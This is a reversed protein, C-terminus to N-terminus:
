KFDGMRLISKERGFIKVIGAIDPGKTKGTLSIRIPMMLNKGGKGLDEGVFMM